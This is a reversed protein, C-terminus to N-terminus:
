SLNLINDVNSLVLCWLVIILICLSYILFAFWQILSPKFGYKKYFFIILIEFLLGSAFYINIISTHMFRVVKILIEPLQMQPLHISSVIFVYMWCFLHYLLIINLIKNFKKMM